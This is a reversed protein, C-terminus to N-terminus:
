KPGGIWKWTKGNGIESIHSSSVGFAKAIADQKEGTALRGRIETVAAVTLKSGHIDSGRVSRGKAIMDNSNDQKTGLFLHAPNMCLRTDCSHLVCLGHPIPGVFTEYALRHTSTHIADPLWVAGYGHGDTPGLWLWCGVIPVPEYLEGFGRVFQQRTV